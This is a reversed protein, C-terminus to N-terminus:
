RMNSGFSVNERVSDIVAAGYIKDLDLPTLEWQQDLITVYKGLGSYEKNQGGYAQQATVVGVALFLELIRLM